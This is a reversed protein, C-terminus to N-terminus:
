ACVVCSLECECNAIDCVQFSFLKFFDNGGEGPRWLMAHGNTFVPFVHRPERRAPNRQPTPVLSAIPLDLSLRKREIIRAQADAFALEFVGKALDVAVTTIQM